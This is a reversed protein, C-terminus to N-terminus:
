ATGIIAIPILTLQVLVVHTTFLVRWETGIDLIALTTVAVQLYEEDVWISDGPDGPDDGALGGPSLVGEVDRPLCMTAPGGGVLTILAEPSAHELCESKTPCPCPTIM